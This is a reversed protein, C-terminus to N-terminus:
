KGLPEQWQYRIRVCVTKKGWDTCLLQWIQQLLLSEQKEGQGDECWLVRWISTSPSYSRDFRILFCVFCIYNFSPNLAFISLYIHFSFRNWIRKEKKKGDGEFIKGRVHLNNKVSPGFVAKIGRASCSVRPLALQPRQEPTEKVQVASFCWCHQAMFAFVLSIWYRKASQYNMEKHHQHKKASTTQARSIDLRKKSLTFPDRSM